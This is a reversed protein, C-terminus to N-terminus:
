EEDDDGYMSDFTIQVIQFEDEDEIQELTVEDETESYRYLYLPCDEEESELAAVPMLAAYEYEYVRTKFVGLVLCDEPEEDELCLSIVDYEENEQFTFSSM